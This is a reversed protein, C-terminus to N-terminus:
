RPRTSRRRVASAASRSSRPSPCAERRSATWSSTASSSSSLRSRTRLCLTSSLTLTRFRLSRNVQADANTYGLGKVISPLSDADSWVVARSAACLSSTSGIVVNGGLYIISGCYTRWDLAGAKLQAKDITGVAEVKLTRGAREAAM